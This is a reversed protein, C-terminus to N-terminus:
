CGDASGHGIITLQDNVVTLQDDLVMLQDDVVILGFGEQRMVCFIMELFFVKRDFTKILLCPAM